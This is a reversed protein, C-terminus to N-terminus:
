VATVNSSVVDPAELGANMEDAHPPPPPPTRHPPIPPPPPLDEISRYVSALNNFILRCLAM